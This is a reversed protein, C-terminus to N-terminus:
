GQVKGAQEARKKQMKYVKDAKLQNYKKVQDANLVGTIQKDTTEMIAKIAKRNHRKNDATKNAAKLSDVSTAQKLLIDHVKVSQAQSLALESQMKKSLIDAKQQATKHPRVETQAHAALGLGAVIAMM